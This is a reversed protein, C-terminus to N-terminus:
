AVPPDAALISDANPPPFAVGIVEVFENAAFQSLKSISKQALGIFNEFSASLSAIEETPDNSFERRSAVRLLRDLFRDSESLHAATHVATQIYPSPSTIAIDQPSIAHTAYISAIKLLDNRRNM